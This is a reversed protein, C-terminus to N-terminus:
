GKQIEAIYAGLQEFTGSWGGNMSDHSAAFLAREAETADIASWRITVTTRGAEDETFTIVSLTELPWGEAMPHRTVNGQEDSFSSIFVLRQPPVIERYAWKGWMETDDPSRMGYHFVGGRRLDNKAFIIKTGKPGFWRSLHEPETWVDFMLARPADFTRSIVFPNDLSSLQEGLRELTERQGEVAGFETAVKDRQEASEFVMRMTVTTKGDEEAFTVTADFTPGSVHRYTLLEPERVQGYISKNKYDTGDPGHMIFEWLGGPRVDMTHITNTFGRPGWWQALHRPDTWMQFVLARPADFVRTASIERSPDNSSGANASM